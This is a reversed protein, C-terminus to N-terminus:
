RTALIKKAAERLLPSVPVAVMGEQDPTAVPLIPRHGDLGLSKRSEEKIKDRGLWEGLAGIMRRYIDEVKATANAKKYYGYALLPLRRDYMYYDGLRILGDHYESKIFLERAKSYDKENFAQNGERILAARQEPKMRDREM